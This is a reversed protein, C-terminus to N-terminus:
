KWKLDNDAVLRIRSVNYENRRKRGYTIRM